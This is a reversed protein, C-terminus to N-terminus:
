YNTFIKSSAIVTEMFPYILLYVPNDIVSYMFRAFSPLTVLFAFYFYKLPSTLMPDFGLLFDFFCSLSDWYDLWIGKMLVEVKTQLSGLVLIWLM